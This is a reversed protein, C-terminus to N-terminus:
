NLRAAITKWARSGSERQMDTIGPPLYAMVATEYSDRARVRDLWKQIAPTKDWIGNLALRDLRDFYATLATDALAYSAGTLFDSQRLAKDMDAIAVRYTALAGDVYVSNAGNAMLDRRKAGFQPNPLSAIWAEIEAPTRRSLEADRIYTAFSLSNVAEHLGITKLLWMQTLGALKTDAPMLSKEGALADLYTLIASSERLAFGDHVITPVVADPNIELYAPTMHEAKKMDLLESHWALDMEALGIRVKQSCVSTDGHYLTLM